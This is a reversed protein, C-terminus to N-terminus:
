KRAGPGLALCLTETLAPTEEASAEPEAETDPRSMQEQQGVGTKRITGRGKLGRIGKTQNWM